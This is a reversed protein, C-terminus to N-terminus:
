RRPRTSSRPRRHASAAGFRMDSPIPSRSANAGPFAKEINKFTPNSGFIGFILGEVVFGYVLGIGIALASQQCIVALLVDFGTWVALILWLAGTAEVITLLDPWPLAQGDLHALVTRSAAAAALVLMTLVLSVVVLAWFKAVVETLRSPKETFITKLTGLWIGQGDGAGGPRHRDVGGPRQRQLAGRSRLTASVPRPDPRGRPQRAFTRDSCVTAAGFEASVAEFSFVPMAM